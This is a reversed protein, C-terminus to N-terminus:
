KQPLPQGTITVAFLCFLHRSRTAHMADLFSGNDGPAKQVQRRAAHQNVPADIM